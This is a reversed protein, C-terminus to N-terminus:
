LAGRDAADQRGPQVAGPEPRREDTFRGARWASSSAPITPPAGRGLATASGAGTAGRSSPGEHVLVREISGGGRAREEISWTELYLRLSVFPAGPVDIADNWIEPHLLFLPAELPGLLGSGGSPDVGDLARLRGAEAKALLWAFAADKEGLTLDAFPGRLWAYLEDIGLPEWSRYDIAHEAGGGDVGVLRPHTAEPPHIGAVLPWSAFPWADRQALGAAFSAALTWAIFVNVAGRRRTLGAALATLVFGAFFVIAVLSTMPERVAPGGPLPM